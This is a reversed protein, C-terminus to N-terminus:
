RVLAYGVRARLKLVVRLWDSRSQLMSNVVTGVGSMIIILEGLPLKYFLYLLLPSFYQMMLLLVLPGQGNFDTCFVCIVIESLVRSLSLIM